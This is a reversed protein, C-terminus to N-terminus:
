VHLGKTDSEQHSPGLQQSLIQHWQLTRENGVGEFMWVLSPYVNRPLLTSKVSAVVSFNPCTGVTDAFKSMCQQRRNEELCAESEPQGWQDSASGPVEEVAVECQKQTEATDQKSVLLHGHQFM